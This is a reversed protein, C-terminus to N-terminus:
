SKYHLWLIKSVQYGAKKVTEIALDLAKGQELKPKCTQTAVSAPCLKLTDSPSTKFYKLALQPVVILPRGESGWVYVNSFRYVFVELTGDSNLDVDAVFFENNEEFLFFNAWGEARLKDKNSKCFEIIQAQTLCM